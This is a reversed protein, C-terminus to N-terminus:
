YKNITPGVTQNVVRSTRDKRSGKTLLNVKFEQLSHENDNNMIDLQHECRVRM